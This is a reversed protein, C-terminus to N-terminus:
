KFLKLQNEDKKDKLIIKKYIYFGICAFALNYVLGAILNLGLNFEFRFVISSLYILLNYLVFSTSFMIIFNFIILDKEYKEFFYIVLNCFLLVILLSIISIGFYSLLIIDLFLGAAIATFFGSSSFIGTQDKDFFIFIFFLIFILNLSAGMVKFYPLFGIQLFAASFFLLFIIPYKLWM